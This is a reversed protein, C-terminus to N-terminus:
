HSKEWLLFYGDSVDDDGKAEKDEEENASVLSATNSNCGYIIYEVPTANTKNERDVSSTNFTYISCSWSIVLNNRGVDCAYSLLLLLM